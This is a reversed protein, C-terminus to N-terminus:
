YVFVVVICSVEHWNGEGDDEGRRGGGQGVEVGFGTEPVVEREDFAKDLAREAGAIAEFVVCDVNEVEKFAVGQARSAGVFTEEDELALRVGVCLGIVPNETIAM